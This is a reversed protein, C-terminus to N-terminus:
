FNIRSLQELKKAAAGGEISNRALGIGEEISTIKQGAYLRLSANYIVADPNRKGNLIEWTIKATEMPLAPRGPLAHELGYEAPDLTYERRQGNQIEYAKVPSLPAEDSGDLGQVALIMESNDGNYAVEAFRELFHGHAAGLLHRRADGPNQLVELGHLFSRYLLIERIERLKEIGHSFRSSHLSVFGKEALQRSAGKMSLMAPVGLEELVDSASTGKKPTMGTSTHMIVPVGCAAAVIASAVSLNLTAKRGDYPAGINLLDEPPDDIKELLSESASRFGKFETVTTGKFRMATLFAGVQAPHAENSFLFLLANRAQEASMEKAGRPGKAIMKLTSQFEKAKENM